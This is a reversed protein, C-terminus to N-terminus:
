TCIYSYNQGSASGVVFIKAVDDVYIPPTQEGAALIFGASASGANPGVTVTGSNGSAARVVVHKKVTYSAGLAQPSTGVTGNGSNWDPVSEKAVHVVSM